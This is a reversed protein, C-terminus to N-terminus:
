IEPIWSTIYDFQESLPKSSVESYRGKLNLEHCTMEFHCLAIGIDNISFRGPRHYFHIKGNEMVVRWPQKNSASPALRVMELPVQYEGADTENLPTDFTGKFFLSNFPKRSDSGAGARMISELFTKKERKYGVPSIILLKENNELKIQSLFDKSNFTAGLWCTGLGLSTCYLVVQEFIYGAGLESIPSEEGILALFSTAGSIVGYTGLKVPENGVQTHILEIRAKAGFPVILQNICDKIKDSHESTLSEGTYSRVSKREKILQIVSM